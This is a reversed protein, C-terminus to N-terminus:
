AVQRRIHEALLPPIANGVQQFQETRTGQLPYNEPFSQLLLGEQQTIRIGDNRSKTSGNFRNANAGPMTVLDRGAIVASPRDLPWSLDFDTGSQNNLRPRGDPMTDTAVYHRVWSRAKETVVFSPQDSSRYDRRRLEKGGITVPGGSGGDYKRGFGVLWRGEDREKKLSARAGSGGVMAPDSGGSKTGAAVTFYPRETMGWGLAEAMSVWKAVGADLRSPTRSHFQSHTPTPLAAARVRSAILIARERTQPVGYQEARLNGTAVSYGLTRLVEAYAEWVPLVAPVQELTISEYPRRNELAMLAWRLPELVLDTNENGFNFHEGSGYRGMVKAAAVIEDLESRGDGKGARSFSQCPPSAKLRRTVPISSRDFKRVDGEIVDGGAMRLTSVAAPNKEISISAYPDHVEWGGIGAFLDTSDFTTM